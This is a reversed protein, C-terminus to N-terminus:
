AYMNSARSRRWIRRVRSSRTYNDALTSVGPRHVIAFDFPTLRLGWREIIAPPKSKANSYIPMLARNDVARMHPILHFM